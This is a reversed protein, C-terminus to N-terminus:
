EDDPAESSEGREEEVWDNEQVLRRLEEEFFHFTECDPGCKCSPAAEILLLLKGAVGVPIAEAM